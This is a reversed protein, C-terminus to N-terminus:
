RGVKKFMHALRAKITDSNYPRNVSLDHFVAKLECSVPKYLRPAM